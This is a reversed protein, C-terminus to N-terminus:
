NNQPLKIGMTKSEGDEMSVGYVVEAAKVMEDNHSIIIFQIGEKAQKKILEIVNRTNPKDLAADIEDLVYFPSPRYKQLTFLFALATLTKEGGSMSDIYLLKKGPPQAQIMLGSGLDSPDELSLNAEGNTLDKYIDRFLGAMSEMTMTFMERKKKEIENISDMISKKERSISVVKDKFDEFEEFLVDFEDIAKMNVPGIEAIEHLIESEREKLASVGKKKFSEKDKLGKWKKEHMKWQIELDDFKAEYKARNIKSKNLEEQAAAMDEYTKRRKERLKEIDEKIAERKKEFDFGKKDGMQKNLEALKEELEEIELKLVHNEEELKERQKNYKGTGLGKGKKYYGGFVAGSTELIDGDLTVMRLRSKEAIGKAKDIDHVCATRGFVYEVVPIFKRDHHVLESMWGLTGQPLEGKHGARIKDLPLFRARGLRNEKLYKVCRIATQLDEVVIDRMHSGAAVEAAIAYKEPVSVISRFTGHVGDMELVPKMDPSMGRSMSAINSIMENLREMERENSSIMSEKSEMSSEIKSIEKSLEVEEQKMAEKMLDELEKDKAEMKLDIGNIEKQLRAVEDQFEKIEKELREINKESSSFEKWLLTSRVLELESSLEQHKLAADRDSKLKEIIEEKQELIIEAERVKEEVRELEKLAKEKKEDYEKIGSIEDIIERRQQPSMDIIKSVDGQRVINHGGPNLSAERFIDIMRSRNTVRGNLRYSSVGKKNVRRTVTVEKENVPLKKSHNSFLLKVKAYDSSKKKRSGHFVLDGAKKARLEKSSGRGLVFGICDGINSKGSGNPGTVVAFNNPLNLSTPKKFSKFGQMVVKELRVM